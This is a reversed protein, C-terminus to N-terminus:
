NAGKQEGLEAQGGQAGADNRQVEGSVGEGPGSTLRGAEAEVQQEERGLEDLEEIMDAFRREQSQLEVKLGRKFDVFHLQQKKFEHEKAALNEKEVLIKDRFAKRQTQETELVREWESNRKHIRERTKEIEFEVKRIHKAQNQINTKEFTLKNVRLRYKLPEKRQKEKKKLRMIEMIKRETLRLIRNRRLYLTRLGENKKLLYIIESAYDESVLNSSLDLRTVKKIRVLLRLVELVLIDDIGCDALALSIGAQGPRNQCSMLWKELSELCELGFENGSINLSELCSGPLLGLFEGLGERDIMNFGINLNRLPSFRLRSALAIAGKTGIKNNELNLSVLSRADLLSEALRRMFLHTLNNSSLELHKLRPNKCLFRYFYDASDDQINNEQLVLRELNENHTLLSKLSDQDVYCNSMDIEKLHRNSQLSETIIASGFVGLENHGLVLSELSTSRTLLHSILRAGEEGLSIRKISAPNSFLNLFRLSTCSILKDLILQLGEFSFNNCSLDLRELRKTALIGRLSYISHNNILNNAM